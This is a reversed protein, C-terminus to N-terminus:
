YFAMFSLLQEFAHQCIGFSKMAMIPREIGMFCFCVFTIETEKLIACLVSDQEGDECM